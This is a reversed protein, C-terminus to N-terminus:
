EERSLGCKRAGRAWGVVLRGEQGGEVLSGETWSAQMGTWGSSETTWSRAVSTTLPM